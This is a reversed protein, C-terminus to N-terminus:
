NTVSEGPQEVLGIQAPWDLLKDLGYHFALYSVFRTGYLYSNVGIQFDITTGESELGVIDYFHADDLVKSRFVMEDYGNFARGYKGSM